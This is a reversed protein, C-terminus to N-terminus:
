KQVRDIGLIERSKTRTTKITEYRTIHGNESEIGVLEGDKRICIFTEETFTIGSEPM